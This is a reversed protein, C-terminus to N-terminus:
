QSPACAGHTTSYLKIPSPCGLTTADVLQRRAFRLRVAKYQNRRETLFTLDHDISAATQDPQTAGISITPPPSHPSNQLYPPSPTPTPSPSTPSSCPEKKEVLGDSARRQREDRSSHRARKRYKHLAHGPPLQRTQLIQTHVRPPPNPRAAYPQIRKWTSTFGRVPVVLRPPMTNSHILNLLIAVAHQEDRVPHPVPQELTWGEPVASRYLLEHLTHFRIADPTDALQAV